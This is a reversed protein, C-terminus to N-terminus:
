KEEMTKLFYDEIDLGQTKLAYLKIGSSVLLRSLESTDEVESLIRLETDSDGFEIEIDPFATKLVKVAEERRDVTVAIHQLCRESLEDVSIEEVLKGGAMIGYRTAIKGLEDLLHSSIMFTVGSANLELILDRIEKIGAPDLGNIPEDLVLLDPHGMLSIALGLRQRMGLSFGKVKKNGTEGLGVRNLLNRIEDDTVNQYLLSFTKMNEFASKGYYLGPEEILSGIRSRSASLKEGDFLRIEGQNPASLGLILRMLSTKGAGNRGILGYIDGKEVHINVHDVAAKEGYQKLLNTTEIVVPM